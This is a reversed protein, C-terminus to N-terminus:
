HDFWYGARYCHDRYRCAGQGVRTHYGRGTHIRPNTFIQEAEDIYINRRFLQTKGHRLHQLYSEVTGTTLWFNLRVANRSFSAMPATSNSTDLIEYGHLTVLSDLM